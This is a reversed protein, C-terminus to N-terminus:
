AESFVPAKTNAREKFYQADGAIATPNKETKQKGQSATAM